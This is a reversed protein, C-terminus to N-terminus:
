AAYYGSYLTGGLLDGFRQFIVAIQGALLRRALWCGEPWGVVKQGALLRRALWCGEPWGVVKQGALL